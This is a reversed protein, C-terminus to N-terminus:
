TGAFSLVLLGAGMVIAADALNFPPWRGIVIFDVVAGHRLRDALNGAAGGLAAGIGAAGLANEAIMGAQLLVAAIATSAIWLVVLTRTALAFMPAGRRTLVKRISLFGANSDAAWSRSLVFAKSAQDAAIVSAAIGMEILMLKNGRAHQRKRRTARIFHFRCLRAPLNDWPIFRVVKIHSVYCFTRGQLPLGIRLIRM